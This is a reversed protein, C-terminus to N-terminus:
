SYRPFEGWQFRLPLFLWKVKTVRALLNRRLVIQFDIRM